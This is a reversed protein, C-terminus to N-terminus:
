GNILNLARDTLKKRLNLISDDDPIDFKDDGIEMKKSNPTLYLDCVKKQLNDDLLISFKGKQDRFGISDTRIKNHQALLTKVIHFIKMEEDTTIIGSNIKASEEVILKELASKISVSNILSRIENEINTTTRNGDMRAFIAKIFDKSPDNLEKFLANEFDEIFFLNQAEELISKIEIVSVHFKALKELSYAEINELDICLFPTPHM